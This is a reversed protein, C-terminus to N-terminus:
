AGDHVEEILRTEFLTLGDVGDKSCEHLRSIIYRSMKLATVLFFKYTFPRGRFRQAACYWATWAERLNMPENILVEADPDDSLRLSANVIALENKLWPWLVAIVQRPASVGDLVAQHVRSLTFGELNPPDRFVETMGDLFAFRLDSRLVSTHRTLGATAEKDLDIGDIDLFYKLARFLQIEEYNM